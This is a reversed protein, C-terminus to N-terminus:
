TIYLFLKNVKFINKKIWKKNREIKRKIKKEKYKGEFIRSVLCLKIKGLKLVCM